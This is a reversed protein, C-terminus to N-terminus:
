EHTGAVFFQAVGCIQEVSLRMKQLHDLLGPPCKKLAEALGPREYIVKRGEDEWELTIGKAAFYDVLIASEQEVFRMAGNQRKCKQSVFESHHKMLESLERKEKPALQFLADRILM